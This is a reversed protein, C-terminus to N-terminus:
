EMLLKRLASYDGSFAKDADDVAGLRFVSGDRFEVAIRTVRYDTHM